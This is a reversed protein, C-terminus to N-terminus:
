LGPERAAPLVTRNMKRNRISLDREWILSQRTSSRRRNINSYLPHCNTLSIPCKTVQLPCARWASARTCYAYMSSGFVAWVMRLWGLDGVAYARKGDTIDM